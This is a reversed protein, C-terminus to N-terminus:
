RSYEPFYSAIGLSILEKVPRCDPQLIEGHTNKAVAACGGGCALRLNCQKCASIALVDRGEWEDVAQENLNREPYFTGLEEGAKGVTATCAYIKGTYDFAWETKTGPCSDFLPDPLEGEDFLFKSVSFAPRHFDMIAPDKKIMEYIDEYLGLRSYLINNKLQCHHLEYNRGIQTKFLPNETWKKEIAFHALAPLEQVNEKDIVMRLNVPFEAELAKDIGRVIKEFTGKGGKLPRRMDHSKGVGDLTVQIERVYAERFIPIFEELYYGNTVMAIELSRDDALAIFEKLFERHSKGSLLPEGGFLTLYKRRGTFTLDIYEFFSELVITDHIASDHQYDDQYCYACQFNCQYTPIFFLQIEDTERNDLFELYQQRFKSAEIAPEVVYGKARMELNEIAKGSQIDEYDERSIIDAEKSLLNLLIYQESGKIRSVINHASFKMRRLDANSIDNQFLHGNLCLSLM